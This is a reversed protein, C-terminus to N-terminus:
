CNLLNQLKTYDNLVIPAIKANVNARFFHSKFDQCDSVLVALQQELLM